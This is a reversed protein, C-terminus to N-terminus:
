TQGFFIKGPNKKSPPPCPLAGRGDGIGITPGWAGWWSFGARTLLNDM